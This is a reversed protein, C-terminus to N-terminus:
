RRAPPPGVSPSESSVGVHSQMALYANATQQWAELRVAPTMALFWDILTLDSGLEDQYSEPGADPTAHM